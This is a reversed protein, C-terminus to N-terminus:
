NKLADPLSPLGKLIKFCMQSQPSIVVWITLFILKIDVWFSINSLYWVELEGKYPAIVARYYTHPEMDTNSMLKEEDRFVISGIGSIGPKENYIVKQIEEPFAKFDVEMQPRPGIISMTGNIVNFIQPLENIKSKRLFRGVWTVRPDNRLTLSGTGMNPSNKLMTAFKCIKFKRNKLGIRDQLYFVKHEGTLLLLFTIPIFVPILLLLAVLALLLDFLRKFASSYM